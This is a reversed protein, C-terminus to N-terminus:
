SLRTRRRTNARRVSFDGRQQVASIRRAIRLAKFQGQALLLGEQADRHLPELGALLNAKTGELQVLARARLRQEIMTARLRDGEDLLGSTACATMESALAALEDGAVAESTIAARDVRARLDPRIRTAVAAAQVRIIPEPSKLALLLAPLYDPHFKRAIVGLATQRDALSGSQMIAAFSKQAVATLDATRGTAVADCLLTVGDVDTSLAIRDYWAALLGRDTRQGQAMLMMILVGAAGFPGTAAISIMALMPQAANGGRRGVAVARAGLLVVITAHAALFRAPALQGSALTALLLGEILLAALTAIADATRARSARASRTSNAVTNAGSRLSTIATDSAVTAM